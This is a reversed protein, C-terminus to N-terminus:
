QEAEGERPEAMDDPMRFVPLTFRARVKRRGNPRREELVLQWTVRPQRTPSSDPQDAPVLIAVPVVTGGEPDPEFPAVPESEGEFITEVKGRTRRGKTSVLRLGCSDPPIDQRTLIRASVPEGPEIPVKDLELVPSGDRLLRLTYVAALCM